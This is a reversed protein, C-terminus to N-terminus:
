LIMQVQAYVCFVSHKKFAVSRIHHCVAGSSGNPSFAAIHRREHIAISGKTANEASRLLHRM